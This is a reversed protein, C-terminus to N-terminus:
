GRITIEVADVDVGFAEALGRKAEAITLPHPREASVEFV